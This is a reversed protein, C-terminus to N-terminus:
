EVPGLGDLLRTQPEELLDDRHGAALLGLAFQGAQAVLFERGPLEPRGESVPPAQSPDDFGCTRGSLQPTSSLQVKDIQGKDSRLSGFCLGTPVVHYYGLSRLQDALM